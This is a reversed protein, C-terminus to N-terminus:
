TNLNVAETTRQGPSVSVVTISDEWGVLSLRLEYSGPTLNQICNPTVGYGIRDLYITAGSPFSTVCLSGLPLPTEPIMTPTVAPAAPTGTPPPTVTMPPPTPIPPYAASVQMRQGGSITITSVRDAYGRSSLQLLHTSASLNTLVIPTVGQYNGDLIVQVELGAPTSTVELSGTQPTEQMCGAGLLIAVLIAAVLIAALPIRRM